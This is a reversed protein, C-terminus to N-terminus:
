VGARRGRAREAARGGRNRVADLTEDVKRMRDKHKELFKAQRQEPTDKSRFRGNQRSM